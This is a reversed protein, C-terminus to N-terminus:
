YASQARLLEPELDLCAPEFGAVEVLNRTANTSTTGAGPTSFYM